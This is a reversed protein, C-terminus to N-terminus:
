PLGWRELRKQFKKRRAGQYAFIGVMLATMLLGMVMIIITTTAVTDLEAACADAYGPYLVAEAPRAPNYAVTVTAGQPFTDVIHEAAARSESAEYCYHIHRSELRRGGAQYEYRVVAEFGPVSSKGRSVRVDKIWSERVVGRATPWQASQLALDRDESLRQTIQQQLALFVGLLALLFVVMLRMILRMIRWSKERTERTSLAGWLLHKETEVALFRDGSADDPYIKVPFGKNVNPMGKRGAQLSVLAVPRTEDLAEGPTDPEYLGVVVGKVEVVGVSRLFMEKPQVRLVLGAARRLPRILQHQLLQYLFYFFGAFVALIAPVIWVPPPHERADPAMYFTMALMFVTGLLVLVTAIIGLRVLRLQKRAKPVALVPDDLIPHDANV